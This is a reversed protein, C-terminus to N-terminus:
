IRRDSTFSSTEFDEANLAGTVLAQSKLYYYANVATLQMYPLTWVFLIGFTMFSLIIWGLFSLYMAFLESKHGQTMYISMRLAKGVTLEPNETLIYFMQSYAVAKIIGPIVFCLTWLVIWLRRWLTACLAKFWYNFGDFFVGIGPKEDSPSNKFIVYYYSVAFSIIGLLITYMLDPFITRKDGRNTNNVFSGAIAYLIIVIISIIAPVTRNGRLQERADAKMSVRDFM